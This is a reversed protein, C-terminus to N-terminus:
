SVYRAVKEKERNSPLVALIGKARDVLARAANVREEDTLEHYNKAAGYLRPIEPQRLRGALEQVYDLDPFPDPVTKWGLRTALALVADDAAMSEDLYDEDSVEEEAQELYWQVTLEQLDRSDERGNIVDEILGDPFPDMEIDIYTEGDGHMMYDVGRLVDRTVWCAVRDGDARFAFYMSRLASKYDDWFWWERHRLSWQRTGPHCWEEAEHLTEDERRRWGEVRFNEKVIGFIIQPVHDCSKEPDDVIPFMRMCEEVDYDMKLAMLRVAGKMKDQAKLDRRMKALVYDHAVYHIWSMKELKRLFQNVIEESSLNKFLYQGPMYDYLTRRLTQKDSWGEESYTEAGGCKPCKITRTKEGYVVKVGSNYCEANWWCIDSRWVWEM